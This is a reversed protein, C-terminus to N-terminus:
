IRAYAPSLTSKVLFRDQKERRDGRPEKDLFIIVGSPHNEQNVVGIIFIRDQDERMRDGFFRRRMLSQPDNYLGKRTLAGALSEGQALLHSLDSNNFTTGKPITDTKTADLLCRWVSIRDQGWRPLKRQFYKQSTSSHFHIILSSPSIIKGILVDFLVNLISASMTIPNKVFRQEDKPTNPFLLSWKESTTLKEHETNQSPLLEKLPMHTM